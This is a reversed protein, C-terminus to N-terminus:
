ALREKIEEAVKNMLSQSPAKQDCKSVELILQYHPVQYSQATEQLMKAFSSHCGAIGYVIDVPNVYHHYNHRKMEPILKEDLFDLLSFLDVGQLQERRYLVAALLETACNGASRAMGLLGTDFIQAGNEYATLANAVALGLNDHGHFAVPIKVAKVMAETYRAVQDPSMTGASDMITIEDLGFDELMKAEEALAGANLIYAKMLSYCCKIGAQKIRKIGEKSLSGDGANAGVRLFGLRHERAFDANEQTANRFGIFMGIEAKDLYPEALKAYELDTCPAISQNTKYAGLGLANGMEITTIGSKILGEIMLTTLKADFGKGVVNAGDRLTCDFIKM